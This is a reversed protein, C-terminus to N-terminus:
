PRAQGAMWSDRLDEQIEDAVSHIRHVGHWGRLAL